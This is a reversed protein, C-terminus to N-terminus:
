LLLVLLLVAVVLPDLELGIWGLDDINPYFEALHTEEVWQSGKPQILIM